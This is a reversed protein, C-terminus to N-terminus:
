GLIRFYMVFSAMGALALCNEARREHRVALRGFGCKLWAFFREVVYRVPDRKNGAARTSGIARRSIADRIGRASLYSRILDTDYGRDAHVSRVEVSADGTMGRAGEIVDVLRTSEHRNAPGAALAVPMGGADIAAHLKTGRIHRFGDYGIGTGRKKCTDCVLRGVTGGAPAHGAPPSGTHCGETDRVMHRSVALGSAEQPCDVKPRVQCSPRDM